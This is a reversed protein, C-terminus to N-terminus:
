YILFTAPKVSDIPRIIAQWVTTSKPLPNKRYDLYRIVIYIDDYNGPPMPDGFYKKQKREAYGIISKAPCNDCTTILIQARVTDLKGTERYGSGLVFSQGSTSYIAFWTILAAIVVAILTLRGPNEIVMPHIM